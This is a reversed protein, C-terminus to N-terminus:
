FLRKYIFGSDKYIEDLRNKNFLVKNESLTLIGTYGPNIQVPIEKHLRIIGRSNLLHLFERESLPIGINKYEIWEEMIM